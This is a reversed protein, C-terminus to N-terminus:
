LGIKAALQPYDTMIADAGRQILTRLDDADNITWYQVALNNRHAFDIVAESGPDFLDKAWSPVSESFPLQLVSYALPFKIEDLNKETMACLLFVIAELMSASRTADPHRLAIYAGVDPRFTAFIVRDLLGRAKVISYLKDAARIGSLPPDKLEIIYRYKKGKPANKEAYDLVDDIKVPRLSDPIKKGRLKAYDAKGDDFKAGLNLNDRLTKYDYDAPKIESKGFYEQANSTDDFTENHLLVLEGDKTRRLDFEFIDVDFEKSKICTEVAMLTNMPAIGAGSRHASLETKSSQIYPNQKAAAKTASGLGPFFVTLATILVSVIQKIITPM